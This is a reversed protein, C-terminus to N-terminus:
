RNKVEKPRLVDSYQDPVSLCGEECIVEEESRWIIEPNALKLPNPKEGERALDMVIVRQPVGVQPAALGIGHSAYMTEIMDDMLKRVSNDVKEVPKSVVKLRPDPATLVPLTAM